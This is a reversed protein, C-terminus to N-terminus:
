FAYIGSVLVQNTNLNSLGLRQSLFRTYEVGLSVEKSLKYQIGGLLAHTDKIEGSALQRTITLNEFAYGIWTNVRGGTFVLQSWSCTANRAQFEKLVADNFVGARSLFTSLNDGNALEGKFEVTKALPISWDLSLGKVDVDNQYTAAKQEEKGYVGSIGIRVKNGPGLRFGVRSQFLPLQSRM